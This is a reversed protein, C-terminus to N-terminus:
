KSNLLGVTCNITLLTNVDICVTRYSVRIIKLLKRMPRREHAQSRTKIAAQLPCSGAEGVAETLLLVDDEEAPVASTPASDVPDTVVGRGSRGAVLENMAM